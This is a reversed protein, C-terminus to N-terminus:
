SVFCPNPHIPVLKPRPVVVGLIKGHRKELQDFNLRLFGHLEPDAGQALYERALAAMLQDYQKQSHSHVSYRGDHRRLDGDFRTGIHYLEHFLTICKEDFDLDLFRPLCFTVLYLIECDDVFLRQVQYTVGRRKRHLSGHEFRMPTLRAQLGHTRTSRAQTVAFLLRGVDIHQLEPCRDVIDACLDRVHKCFDFPQGVPGSPWFGPADLVCTLPRQPAMIRRLPLPQQADWRLELPLMPRKHPVIATSM